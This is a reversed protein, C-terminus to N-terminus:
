KNQKDYEYPEYDIKDKSSTLLQCCNLKDIKFYIKHSL